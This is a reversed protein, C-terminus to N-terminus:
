PDTKENEIYQDFVEDDVIKILVENEALVDKLEELIDIASKKVLMIAKDMISRKSRCPNSGKRNGGDRM